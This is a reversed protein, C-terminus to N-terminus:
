AATEVRGGLVEVVEPASFVVEKGAIAKMTEAMHPYAALMEEIKRSRWAEHKSQITEGERTEMNHM